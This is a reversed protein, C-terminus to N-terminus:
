TLIHAFIPVLQFKKEKYNRGNGGVKLFFPHLRNGSPIKDLFRNYRIYCKERECQEAEYRFAALNSAEESLRSTGLNSRLLQGTIRTRKLKKAEWM